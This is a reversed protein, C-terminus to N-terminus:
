NSCETAYKVQGDKRFWGRGKQDTWKIQLKQGGRKPRDSNEAGGWGGLLLVYSGFKVKNFM